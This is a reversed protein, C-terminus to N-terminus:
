TKIGTGKVIVKQKWYNSSGCAEFVIVSPKQCIVWQTFESPTIETNSRVKNNSFVYAQIVDKALDVGVTTTHNKM